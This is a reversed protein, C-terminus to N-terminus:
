GSAALRVVTIGVANLLHLQSNDQRWRKVAGLAQFFRMEQEAIAPACAMMTAAIPSFSLADDQLTYGGNFRNCGGSGQARGEPAFTLTTQVRDLVPKGGIEAAVWTSGLLPPAPGPPPKPPPPEAARTLLLDVSEGAGRTLVPYITDTRWMPKADVLLKASVAYSHTPDIRAPDYPLTFGIPIQTQAVLSVLSLTEAPADAKSIDILAVELVAGPPLAMRERYSATGTISASQAMAPAAALAAGLTVLRRRPTM